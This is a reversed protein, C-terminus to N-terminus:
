KKMFLLSESEESEEEEEDEAEGEEPCTWGMETQLDQGESTRM